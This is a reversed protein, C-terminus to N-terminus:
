LKWIDDKTYIRNRWELKERQRRTVHICARKKTETCHGGDCYWSNNSFWISYEWHVQM